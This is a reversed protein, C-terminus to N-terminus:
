KENRMLPALINKQACCYPFLKIFIPIVLLELLSVAVFTFLENGGLYMISFRRIPNILLAHTGLVILSYRGYITSLVPIRGIRQCLAMIMFVGSLAIVHYWLPHAYENSPMSSQQAFLVLLIGCFLSFLLLKNDFRIESFVGFKKIAIGVCFFPLASLATDIFYPLHIIGSVGLLGCAIVCVILWIGHVYKLLPYCMLNVWFLAILFWVVGNCYIVEDPQFLDLLYKWQFPIVFQVGILQLLLYILCSGWYFFFTPILIGSIKKILFNKFCSYTNFFIGSLVFFLPMDFNKIVLGTPTSAIGTTHELVVLLIVVGKATDIWEIRQKM